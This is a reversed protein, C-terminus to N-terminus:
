MFIISHGVVPILRNKEHNSQMQPRVLIKDCIILPVYWWHSINSNILVKIVQSLCPKDPKGVASNSKEVCDKVIIHGKFPLETLLGCKCLPPYCVGEKLASYM